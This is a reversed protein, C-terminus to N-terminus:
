TSSMERWKLRDLPYLIRKGNLVGQLLGKGIRDEDEIATVRRLQSDTVSEDLQRPATGRGFSATLMEDGEGFRLMAVNDGLGVINATLDIPRKRNYRVFYKCVLIQIIGPSCDPKLIKM